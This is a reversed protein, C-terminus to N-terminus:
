RDAALRTPRFFSLTQRMQPRIKQLVDLLDLVTLKQLDPKKIYQKRSPSYATLMKGDAVVTQDGQVVKGALAGEGAYTVVVHVLNPSKYKIVQSKTLSFEKGDKTKGKEHTIITATYANSNRYTDVMKKLIAGATDARSSVCLAVLALLPLVTRTARKGGCPPLVSRVSM